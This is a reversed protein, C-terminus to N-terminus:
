AKGKGAIGKGAALVLSMDGRGILKWNRSAGSVDVLDTQDRM